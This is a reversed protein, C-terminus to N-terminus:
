VAPEALWIVGAQRGSRVGDRRYSFLDPTEATCPDLRVVTCDLQRLQASAGAALDIAPTGATTRAETAPLQRWAAAAMDAPVEYCAACIHPGIWATLQEAGAARLQAVLAPLVGALLGVRGAHAAGILGHDPDAVLVPLCDAVRILLGVRRAGTVVGDAAAFSEVVGNVATTPTPGSFTVVHASHVQRLGILRTLGLQQRLSALNTMVAVPDDHSTNGLNLSDFPPQSVGGHRQTFAVGVGGPEAPAYYHFLDPRSLPNPITSETM